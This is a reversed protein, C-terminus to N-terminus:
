DKAVHQIIATHQRLQILAQEIHQTDSSALDLRVRYIGLPSPGEMISGHVARIVQSIQATTATSVFSIQVVPGQLQPGSLPMMPKSLFWADVLLGAQILIILSAAIALGTHWWESSLLTQTPPVQRSARVEGLLRNLGLEGPSEIPFDKVQTRMKQLLTIEQQCLPCYQLHEEVVQREKDSLTGNVFWPLLEEPHTPQKTPTDKM